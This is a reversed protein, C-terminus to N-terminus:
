VAQLDCFASLYKLVPTTAGNPDNVSFSYRLSSVRMDVIRAADKIAQGMDM